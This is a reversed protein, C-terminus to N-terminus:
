AKPGGFTPDGEASPMARLGGVERVVDVAESGLEVNLEEDGYRVVCRAGARGHVTARELRGNRWTVDVGFAGRARLGQVSGSPWAAPLAPLLHLAGDHSQVLMEAIGATGGFNGDIQFPPHADFLNPYTREPGLLMRLVTHAHQGDELRAWLNLRWALGWGTADDGRLELSRRAAAALDPTRRLTIARGPHLAYLHSVHRHHREPAQMDWDSLWEQLQGAGGIQDPALGARADAFEARLAADVGLTESAEICCAFLDRLIQSDMAPGACLSAGGPHANEPSMSPCTVLWGHVPEAVLADLFFEAAGKILPYITRLVDPDRGYDYHDWLTTCLWAGGLPWLGWRAGDVPATARWLDANHHAVWGRAGYHIRATRAGTEALDRVLSILPEMCEGLHTSEAPWYNMETNINITFKCGWPPSTSENWLGQLTTAQTGPRSGSIMLYRGFQFYLAALQPDDAMLADRVREDTPRLAADTAGLDISVRQFLRQHEAVHDARLREYPKQEAAAIQRIAVAGPDGSVDRYSRFSTAGAVLIVVSDAGRVSVVGDRSAHRGGLAIVRARLAFRLAGPIGAEGPNKGSLALALPEDDAKQAEHPTDVSIDVDICGARAATLCVVIVQDIPSAFVERTFACGGSVFQTRAIATELDLERRYDAVLAVGPFALLLDGLPQYPMQVLPRAMMRAEAIAEAEAYRGEFILRRVEPLAVLADAHNPDYPGGAWLTDENLQLRERELGGFVMGGLRGNGVPLAETWALAPQRYWLRWLSSASM